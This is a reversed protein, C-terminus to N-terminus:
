RYYRIEVIEGPRGAKIWCEKRDHYIKGKIKFIVFDKKDIGMEKEVLERTKDLDTPTKKVCDCSM